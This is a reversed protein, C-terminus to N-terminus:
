AHAYSEWTSLVVATLAHDVIWLTRASISPFDTVIPMPHSALTYKLHYRMM